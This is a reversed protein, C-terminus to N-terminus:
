GEALSVKTQGSFRKFSRLLLPMTMRLVRQKGDVRKTLRLFMM